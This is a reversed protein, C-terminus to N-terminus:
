GVAARILELVRTLQDFELTHFSGLREPSLTFSLGAIPTPRLTEVIEAVNAETVDLSVFLSVSDALAVFDELGLAGEPRRPPSATLFSWANDKYSPFIQVDYFALWPRGAPFEDALARPEDPEVFLGGPILRVQAQATAEAPLPSYGRYQVLEVGRGALRSLEAASIADNPRQVVPRATRVHALLDGLADELVYRDDDWLPDEAMKYVAEDDVDFGIYDVGLRELAEVEDADRVRHVKIQLQGTM